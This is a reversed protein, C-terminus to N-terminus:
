RRKNKSKNIEEEIKRNEQKQKEVAIDHWEYFEAISMKKIDQYTFSGNSHKLFSFIVKRLNSKNAKNSFLALEL